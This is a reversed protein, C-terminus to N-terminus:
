SFINSIFPTFHEIYGLGIYDGCPNGIKITLEMWALLTIITYTGVFVRTRHNFWILSISHIDNVDM